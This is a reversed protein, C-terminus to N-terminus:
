EEEEFLEGCHPCFWYGEATHNLKYGCEPCQNGDEKEQTVSYKDLLANLRTELTIEEKETAAKALKDELEAIKAQLAKVDVESEGEKKTM